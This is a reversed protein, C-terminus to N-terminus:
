YIFNSEILYIVVGQQNDYKSETIYYLKEESSLTRKLDYEIYFIFVKSAEAMKKNTDIENIIIFNEIFAPKGQYCRIINIIKM